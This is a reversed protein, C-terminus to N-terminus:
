CRCCRSMRPTSSATWGRCRSRRGCGRTFSTRTASAPRRTPTSSSSSSRRRRRPLRRAPLHAAARTGPDVRVLSDEFTAAGLEEQLREDDPYADCFRNLVACLCRSRARIRAGARPLRLAADPRVPDHSRRLRRRQRRALGRDAVRARRLRRRAQVARGPAPAEPRQGPRGDAGADRGTVEGNAVPREFLTSLVVQTQTRHVGPTERIRELAEELHQTDTARLHLIASPPAPSRTPARSRPSAKSVAASVEAGVDPGRLLARRLRPHALRLRPEVTATYGRIVGERRSGTSAASSRRRRCRSGSASTRSPAGPTRACCRLSRSTPTTTPLRWKRALSAVFRPQSGAGAPVM